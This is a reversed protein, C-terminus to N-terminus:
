TFSNILGTFVVIGAWLGSSTLIIGKSKEWGGSSALVVPIAIILVFSLAVLLFVLGQLLISM